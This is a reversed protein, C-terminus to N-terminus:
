APLRRGILEAVQPVVANGLAELRRRDMGRSLGDDMGLTAPDPTWKPWRLRTPAPLWRTEDDVPKTSEGDSNPYAVVWLRDRKHPAGVASAPICDWEADYGISALDALVADFGLHLHGVVNELLVARPTTACVLRFVEPWLHADHNTGQRDGAHSWPQCPYGAALLDFHGFETGQFTRVDDHRPVEPWHKELVRIAFPDIEVQGVCTHGARELGLDIGGIGAFLSVFKM